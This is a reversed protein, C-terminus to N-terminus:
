TLVCRVALDISSRGIYDLWPKRKKEKLDQRSRISNVRRKPIAVETSSKWARSSFDVACCRWPPWNSTTWAFETRSLTNLAAMADLSTATLNPGPRSSINTSRCCSCTAPIWTRMLETFTQNLGIM